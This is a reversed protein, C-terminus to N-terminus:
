HHCLNHEITLLVGRIGGTIGVDLVTKLVLSSLHMLYVFAAIALLAFLAVILYIGVFNRLQM